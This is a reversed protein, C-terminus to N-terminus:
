LLDRDDFAEDAVEVQADVNADPRSHALAIPQRQARAVDVQGQLLPLGCGAEARRQSLGGGRVRFPLPVALSQAADQVSAKSGLRQHPDVVRLHDIRSSKPLGACKGHDGRSNSFRPQDVVVVERSGERSLRSKQPLISARKPPPRKSSWSWM